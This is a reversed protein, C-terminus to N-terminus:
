AAEAPTEQYRQNAVVTALLLVADRVRTRNSMDSFKGGPLRVRWMQPYKDDRVIHVIERNGLCLTDARWLFDQRSYVWM